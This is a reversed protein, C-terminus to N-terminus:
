QSAPQFNSHSQSNYGDPTSIFIYGFGALKPIQYFGKEDTVVVNVQDSVAVGSIGKENEDKVGNGNTDLFVYGSVSQAHAGTITLILALVWGLRTFPLRALSTM